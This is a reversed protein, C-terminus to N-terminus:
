DTNETALSVFFRVAGAAMHALRRWERMEGEGVM